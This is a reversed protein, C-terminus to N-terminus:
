ILQSRDLSLWSEPLGSLLFKYILVYTKYLTSRQEDQKNSRILYQFLEQM